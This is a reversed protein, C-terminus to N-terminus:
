EQCAQDPLHLLFPQRFLTALDNLDTLRQEVTGAEFRGRPIEAIVRWVPSEATSAALWPAAIPRLGPHAAASGGAPMSLSIEGQLCIPEGQFRPTAQWALPVGKPDAKERRYGLSPIGLAQGVLATPSPLTYLEGGVPLLAAPITGKIELGAPQRSLHDPERFSAETVVAGPIVQGLAQQVHQRFREADGTRFRAEAFVLPSEGVTELDFRAERSCAVEVDLTVEIRRCGPQRTHVPFLGGGRPGLWLCHRGQLNSPPLGFVAMPDTADFLVWGKGPGDLLAGPWTEAGALRVALVVHDFARLTPLAPEGQYAPSAQCLVPVSEVGAEGLLAQLLLVKGKCDASRTRLTEGPPEPRYAGHGWAIDRYTLSQVFAAMRQVANGGTAIRAATPEWATRAEAALADRFLAAAEAALAPWEPRGKHGRPIVVHPLAYLPTALWPDDGRYVTAFAPVEHLVIDGERVIPAGEGEGPEVWFIRPRPGAAPAPSARVVLEAAPYDDFPWLVDGVLLPERDSVEWELIAREEPALRGTSTLVISLSTTAVASPRPM